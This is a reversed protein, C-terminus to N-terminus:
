YLAKKMPGPGPPRSLQVPMGLWQSLEEPTPLYLQYTAAFLQRRENLLSYQVLAQDKERCLIIGLTPRDDEARWKDDYLRIYLDMQGIDAHSLPGAKLDILVFCKLRFHYFVLDIYFSKGGALAIRQQRAVFAFGRGLELLFDQLKDLLANELQREPLPTGDAMELFELVFHDKVPNGPPRAAAQREYYATGLQRALERLSWHNHAAEQAYYARAAAKKVKMLLCYHSWSLEPLIEEAAPFAQYFEGCLRLKRTPFARGTDQQLRQSLARALQSDPKGGAALLQGILWYARVDHQATGRDRDFVPSSRGPQAAAKASPRPRAPKRAQNSRQLMQVIERYRTLDFILEKM